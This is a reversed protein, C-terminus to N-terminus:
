YHVVSFIRRKQILSPFFVLCVLKCTKENSDHQLVLLLVLLVLSCFNWKQDETGFLRGTIGDKAATCKHMWM